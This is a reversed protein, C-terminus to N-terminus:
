QVDVSYSMSPEYEVTLLFHPPPVLLERGLGVGALRLPEEWEVTQGTLAPDVVHLCAEVHEAGNLKSAKEHRLGLLFGFVVSIVQAIISVSEWM